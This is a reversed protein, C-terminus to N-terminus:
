REAPASARLSEVIGRLEEGIAAAQTRTCTGVATAVDTVPGRRLLIQRYRVLMPGRQPDRQEAGLSLGLEDTAADLERGKAMAIRQRLVKAGDEDSVEGPWREIMVLVNPAFGSTSVAHRVGMAAGAWAFPEWAVPVDIGLEPYAPFEEGPMSMPRTAGPPMSMHRTAGPQTEAM